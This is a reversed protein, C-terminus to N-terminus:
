VFDIFLSVCGQLRIYIKRVTPFRSVRPGIRFVICTKADEEEGFMLRRQKSGWGPIKM